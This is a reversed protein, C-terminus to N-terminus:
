FGGLQVAAARVITTSPMPILYAAAWFPTGNANYSVNISFVNTTGQYTVTALAPNLTSYSGIEANFTSQALSQRESATLGAVASRAADNALQQLSHAMWFYGGYCVIGLLFILFIPTLIAFEIAAAGARHALFEHRKRSFLRPMRALRVFLPDCCDRSM